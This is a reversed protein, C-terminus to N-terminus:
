FKFYRYDEKVDLSLLTHYMLEITHEVDDKHVMEVTTHMYRLPLSILTSPIWENSLMFADTDTGTWSSNALRQFPIDHKTAVDITLDRLTHHISPAYSIVPWFWSKTDGHKKPDMHIPTSSDHCVDTVIAVHPNIRHAITWAGYLGVEEQVSNVIYLGFDLKDGQDHIKKAVQAIMYWGIRNDLARCVYYSDHLMMFDADFTAVTGVHIGLAEVEDRSSAGVDITLNKMEPVLDKGDRSRTHIAPRGFVWKVASGDDKWLNVRMSPAIQDDSGGNRIVYIYWKDDIYNVFRSIEDAHAEIVVKYKADPNIVGVATGYHDVFYEDVYDQLYDLWVKQGKKEYGTPAHTNLYKKLFTLDAM